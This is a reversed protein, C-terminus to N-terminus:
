SVESPPRSRDSRTAPKRRFPHGSHTPVLPRSPDSYARPIGQWTEHDTAPGSSRANFEQVEALDIYTVAIGTPRIHRTECGVWRGDQAMELFFRFPLWGPPTLELFADAPAANKISCPLKPRGEIRIWGLSNVEKKGFQRRAKSTPMPKKWHRLKLPLGGCIFIPRQLKLWDSLATAALGSQKSNLGM